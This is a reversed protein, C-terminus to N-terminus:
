VGACYPNMDPQGLVRHSAGDHHAERKFRGTLELTAESLAWPSSHNPLGYSDLDLVESSVGVYIHESVPIFGLSGQSDLPKVKASKNKFLKDLRADDDTEHSVM